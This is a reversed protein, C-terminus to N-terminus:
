RLVPVPLPRATWRGAGDQTRPPKQTKRMPRRRLHLTFLRCLFPNRVVAHPGHLPTRHPFPTPTLTPPHRSRAKTTCMSSTMSRCM